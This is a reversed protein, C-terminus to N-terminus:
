WLKFSYNGHKIGRLRSFNRKGLVGLLFLRPLSHYYERRSPYIRIAKSLAKLGKWFDGDETYLCGLDFYRYSYSKRDLSFFHEYKKLMAEQGTIVKKINKTIQGEHVGYNVLSKEICDFHFDKSIRIWMDYDLGYPISEDFLGAKEFCEKRLLITSSTGIVNEHIMEDYIYGRKDVTRQFLVEGGPNAIATFGTYVGGVTPPHTELLKLQLGLKEPLWEDDDDLFAIYDARSNLVGINRARGEGLTIENRIYKIREDKFSDAVYRTRDESGDDVVLITFDKFTQNLVSAIAKRLFNERNCTLIIVDVKRM